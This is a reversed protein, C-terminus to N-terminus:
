TFYKYNIIADNSKREHKHIETLIKSSYCIGTRMKKVYDLSFCITAKRIPLLFQAFGRFIGMKKLTSYIYPRRPKTLPNRTIQQDDRGM